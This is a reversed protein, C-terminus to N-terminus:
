LLNILDPNNKEKEMIFECTSILEDWTIPIRKNYKDLLKTNSYLVEYSLYTPLGVVEDEEENKYSCTENVVKSNFMEIFEKPLNKRLDLLYPAYVKTYRNSFTYMDYKNNNSSTKDNSKKLSSEALSKFNIYSDLPNEYRMIEMNVSIDLNNQEAYIRFKEEMETKNFTDYNDFTYTLVNITTEKGFCQTLYFIIFFFLIKYKMSISM